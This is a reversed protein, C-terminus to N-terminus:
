KKISASFERVKQTGGSKVPDGHGSLLIVFDLSSIKEISSMAQSWDETFQKPPGQLKGGRTIISDGVFVLKRQNDYLSLSGPTHGPTTVVKLSAGIQDGEKLRIDPEMALARFFISFFRFLVGTGGRPTSLKKRRALFEADQEHIAVKAGTAKKLSLAGRIHDIHAHTIVITKLDSPQKSLTNKMYDLIKKGGASTGTDVLTLSGDGELILYSNASVGDIQHVGPTIEVMIPDEEGAHRKIKTWIEYSM